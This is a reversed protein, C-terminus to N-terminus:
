LEPLNRGPRKGGHRTPWGTNTTTVTFTGAIGLTFSAPFTVKVKAETGNVASTKACVTGTTAQATALRDFRVMTNLLPSASASPMLFPMGAQLLLTLAFVAGAIRTKTM